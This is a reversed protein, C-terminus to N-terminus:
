IHILSLDEDDSELAESLPEIARKDGIEGLRRAATARARWNDKCVKLKDGKQNYVTFPGDNKLIKILPKVAGKDKTYALAEVTTSRVDQSYGYTELFDNKPM